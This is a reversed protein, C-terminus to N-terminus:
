RAGEAFGGGFISGREPATWADLVAPRWLVAILVGLLCIKAGVAPRLGATPGTLQQQQPPPPTGGRMLPRPCWAAAFGGALVSRPDIKPGYKPARRHRLGLPRISDPPHRRLTEALRMRLSGEFRRPDEAARRRCAGLHQLFFVPARGFLYVLVFHLSHLVVVYYAMVATGTAMSVLACRPRIARPPRM